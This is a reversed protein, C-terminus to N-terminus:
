GAPQAVTPWQLARWEHDLIAFLLQDHWEGKIFEKERLCGERRMGIKTLVRASGANGAICCAWIRHLGLTEFGFHLIARTAETALGQGWSDPELEYGINAERQEPADIRIGCNGILRGDQKLVLALQFKQRPQEQQQDLFMQVFARVDDETRHTWHYYRLYRPDSQYTLVAPWDDEFFDRLLLRPTELVM